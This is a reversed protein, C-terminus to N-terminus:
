SSSSSSGALGNLAWDYSQVAQFLTLEANRVAKDAQQTTIEQAIYDLRSLTGLEYQREAKRLNSEELAAQAKSLEYASQSALVNKYSALLSAGISQTDEQITENLEDITDPSWANELKRKNSKMTYSNEVAMAKDAEPDMQAIREPDIDPLEGIEPDANHEWGLLVLMRQRLNVLADRGDQVAKEANKVSESITLVEIDTALGVSQQVLASEYQEKLLELTKEDTELQIQGAYLSIMDSQAESVLLCEALCTDYYYVLYDELEDDATERWNDIQMEATVINTMVSAFDSDSVDPYDLSSELEDALERYRDAWEHKSEGYDKRFENLDIQNKKATANYEHILDPIEEYEIKDDRLRDWEEQSRAFEPTGAWAAPPAAAFGCLVLAGAAMRKWFKM